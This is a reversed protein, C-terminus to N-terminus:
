EEERIERPLLDPIRISLDRLITQIQVNPDWRRLKLILRIDEKPNVSPAVVASRARQVDIISYSKRSLLIRDDNGALHTSTYFFLNHTYM